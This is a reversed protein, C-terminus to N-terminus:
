IQTWSAQILECPTGDDFMVTASSDFYMGSITLVDGGEVKLGASPEVSDVQLPISFPAVTDIVNVDGAETTLSVHWNGAVTSDLIEVMM